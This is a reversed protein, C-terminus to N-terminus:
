FTEEQKVPFNKIQIFEYFVKRSEAMRNYALSQSGKFFAKPLARSQLVHGNKHTKRNTLCQGEREVLRRGTTLLCMGNIVTSGMAPYAETM